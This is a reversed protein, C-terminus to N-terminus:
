GPRSVQASPHLNIRQEQPCLPPPVKESADVGQGEVERPQLGVQSQLLLAVPFALGVCSMIGGKLGTLPVDM